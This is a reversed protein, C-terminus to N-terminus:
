PVEGSIAVTVIFGSGRAERFLVGNVFVQVVLSGELFNDAPSEAQLYLFPHLDTTQYSIAWPLDTQVQSTGQLSSFYTIRTNAITGTVRYDVRLTAPPPTVPTPETTPDRLGARGNDNSCALLPVLLLLALLRTM